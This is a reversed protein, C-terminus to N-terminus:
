RRGRRPVAESDSDSQIGDQGRAVGGDRGHEDDEPVISASTLPLPPYVLPQAVAHGAEHYAIALTELAPCFAQTGAADGM